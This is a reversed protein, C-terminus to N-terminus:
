YLTTGVFARDKLYMMVSQWANMTPDTSYQLSLIVRYQNACLRTAKHYVIDGEFVQPKGELTQENGHADIYTFKSCTDTGVVPILVTFFRGKFYSVDYHPQIGDGERDYVIVACSTPLHMPTPYVTEGVVQSIVPTLQEYYKVISPLQEVLQNTTLTRGDRVGPMHVRKAADPHDKLFQLIEAKLSDPLQLDPPSTIGCFKDNSVNKCHAIKNIYLKGRAWMYILPCLLMIVVLVCLIGTAM